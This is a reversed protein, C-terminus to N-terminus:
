DANLLQQTVPSSAGPCNRKGDLGLTDSEDSHATGTGVHKSDIKEGNKIVHVKTLIMNTSALTAFM